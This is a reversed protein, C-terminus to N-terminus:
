VRFSIKEMPASTSGGGTAASDNGSACGVLVFVTLTTVALLYFFKKM